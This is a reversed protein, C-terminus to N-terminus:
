ACPDAACQPLQSVAFDHHWAHWQAKSDTVINTLVTTAVEGAELVAQLREALM